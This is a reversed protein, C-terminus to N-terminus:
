QSAKSLHFFIMRIIVNIFSGTTEAEVVDLCGTYFVKRENRDFSSKIVM